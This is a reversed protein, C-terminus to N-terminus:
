QCESRDWYKHILTLCNNRWLTMTSLPYFIVSMYFFYLVNFASIKSAWWSYLCSDKLVKSYNSITNILNAGSNLNGKDKWVFSTFAFYRRKQCQKKKRIFLINMWKSMKINRQNNIFKSTQINKSNSFLNAQRNSM